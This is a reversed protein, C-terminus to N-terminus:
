VTQTNEIKNNNNRSFCKKLLGSLSKFVTVICNTKVIADQIVNINLKGKSAMIIVNITENIIGSDIMDICINRINDDIHSSDMDVIQKRLIELLIEKKELGSLAHTEIVEMTERLIHILDTQSFKKNGLNTIILPMVNTKMDNLVDKKIEELITIPEEDITFMIHSLDEVITNTTEAIEPIETSM